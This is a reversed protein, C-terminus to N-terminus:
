HLTITKGDKGLGGSKEIPISEDAVLEGKINDLVTIMYNTHSYVFPNNYTNGVMKDVKAAFVYDADGVLEYPNSVDVAYSLHIRLIDDDGNFSPFLGKECFILISATGAILAILAVSFLAFQKKTFKVM